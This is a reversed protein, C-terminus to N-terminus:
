VPARFFEIKISPEVRIRAGYPIPADGDYRGGFLRGAGIELYNGRTDNVWRAADSEVLRCDMVAMDCGDRILAIHVDGDYQKVKVVLCMGDKAVTFVHSIEYEEVDPAVGLCQIFDVASWNIQPM